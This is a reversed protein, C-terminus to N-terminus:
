QKSLFVIALLNIMILILLTQGIGMLPIFFLAASLAGLCSGLLDASYIFGPHFAGYLHNAYTFELGVLGGILVALIPFVIERSLFLNIQDFLNFWFLCYILFLYAIILLHIRSISSLRILRNSRPQTKKIGLWTGGALGLMFLAILLALRYYLYGFLSQYAIILLIEAAMLSFGGIAMALWLIKVPNTKKKLLLILGALLLFLALFWSFKIQLSLRLWDSLRPHFYTTWFFFNYAYSIPWNDRNIKVKEEALVKNLQSTRQNTLLYNLYPQNIFQTSLNRQQWRETLLSVPANLISKQNSALFLATGEEPLVIVEPFVKKLTQYISAELKILDKNQYNPSFSLYTALIGAEQLNNKVEKFSEQTYFRNFLATSPDPLNILALDFKEPLATKLFHRGDQNIIKVSPQNFTKQLHNPLYPLVTRVLWPDLELYYIKAPRHKLIEKILGQFGHGILLINQPQDLFLLPLHALSENLPIEQNSALWFGSQYFNYQKTGTVQSVALQGYPSNTIKILKQKPFRWSQSQYEIFQSFQPLSLLAFAFLFVLSIIRFFLYKERSLPMLIFLVALFNLCALLSLAIWVNFLILFYSFFLGAFVFGITEIFYARNVSQVLKSQDLCKTTTSFQLGLILCLPAPIFVALILSPLLDPM